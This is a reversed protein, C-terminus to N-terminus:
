PLFWLLGNTVLNNKYPPSSMPSHNLGTNCLFYSSAVRDKRANRRKWVKCGKEWINACPLLLSLFSWFMLSYRTEEKLHCNTFWWPSAAQESKETCNQPIENSLCLGAASCHSTPKWWHRNSYILQKVKWHLHHLHFDLALAPCILSQFIGTQKLTFLELICMCKM